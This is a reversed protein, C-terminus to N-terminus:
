IISSDDKRSGGKYLYATDAKRAMQESISKEIYLLAGREIQYEFRIMRGGGAYFQRFANGEEGSDNQVFGPPVILVTKGALFEPLRERNKLFMCNASTVEFLFDKLKNRVINQFNRSETLIGIREMHSLNALDIITQQSPSLVVQLLRGGIQPAIGCLESYHTSTTLIIDYEELMGAAEPNKQFMDLPYKHIQLNSIHWLQQEFTALSEPNCDVAAVHFRERSQRHDELVVHFLSRIENYTFNLRTMDHVVKRLMSVAREKRDTPVVNQHSSVFTGRGHGIDLIHNDQLKEYARKVTGRAVDLAAALEREPPLKDGPKLAGSKVQRTIEEVLQRYVPTERSKDVKINLM